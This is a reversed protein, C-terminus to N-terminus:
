SSAALAAATALILPTPLVFGFDSRGNVTFLTVSEARSVFVTALSGVLDLMAGGAAAGVAFRVMFIPGSPSTRNSTALTQLLLIGGIEDIVEIALMMLEVVEVDMVDVEISEVVTVDMDFDAVEKELLMSEGSGVSGGLSAPGPLSSEPFASAPAAPAAAPAFPATPAPSAAPAAAPAATAPATAPTAPPAPAVLESGILDGFGAKSDVATGETLGTTGVNGVTENAGEDEAINDSMIGDDTAAAAPACTACSMLETSDFDDVEALGDIVTDGLSRDSIILDMVASAPAFTTSSIWKTWVLDELEVEGGHEGSEGAGDFGM